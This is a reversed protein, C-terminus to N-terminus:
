TAMRAEVWSVSRPNGNSRHSKKMWVLRQTTEPVCVRRFVSSPHFPPVGGARLTWKGSCRFLYTALVHVIYKDGTQGDVQRCSCRLRSPFTQFKQSFRFLIRSIRCVRTSLISPVANVIRAVLSVFTLSPALSEGELISDCNGAHGVFFLSWNKNM